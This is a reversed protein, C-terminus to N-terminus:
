SIRIKSHKIYIGTSRLYNLSWKQLNSLTTKCFCRRQLGFVFMLIRRTEHENLDGFAEFLSGFNEEEEMGLGEEIQTMIAETEATRGPAATWDRLHRRSRKCGGLSGCEPRNDNRKRLKFYTKDNVIGSKVEM